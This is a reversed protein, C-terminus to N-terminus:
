SRRAVAPRRGGTRCRRRAGCLRHTGVVDAGEDRHRWSSIVVGAGEGEMERKRERETERDRESERERGKEKKTARARARERM